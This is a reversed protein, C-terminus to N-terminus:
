GLIKLTDVVLHSIHTRKWTYTIYLLNDRSQVVAPDSSEGEGKELM